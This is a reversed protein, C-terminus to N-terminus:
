EIAHFKDTAEETDDLAVVVDFLEAGDCGLGEWVFGPWPRGATVPRGGRESAVMLWNLRRVHQPSLPWQLGADIRAWGGDRQLRGYLCDMWGSRGETM